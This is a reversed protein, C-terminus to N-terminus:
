FKLILGITLDNIGSRKNNSKRTLESKKGIFRIGINQNPFEYGIGVGYLFNYDNKYRNKFFFKQYGIIIFTEIYEIQYGFNLRGGLNHDFKEANAYSYFINPEFFLNQQYNSSIFLEQKKTSLKKGISLDIAFSNKIIFFFIFFATLIIKLKM